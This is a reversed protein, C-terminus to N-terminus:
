QLLFLLGSLTIISLLTSILTIGSILEADGNFETALVTAMVATPMAAETVAVLRTVETLGLLYSVLIGVLAGGILRLLSVALMLPIRQNLSVKSIQIGLLILMLPILANGLVYTVNMILVSHPLYGFNVAFGMLAAYPTPMWLITKLSEIISARGSSALFTGVTYAWLGGGVNIILARELGPQGFAFENFPLGYNGINTLSVSLLVASTTLRDLRLLICGVWTIFTILLSSIIFFSLLDIIEQGQISSNALGYFALSPSGLYIVVGSLSSTDLPKFRHYIAGLGAIIIIPAIVTLIIDFM